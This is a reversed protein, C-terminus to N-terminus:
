FFNKAKPPEVWEGIAEKMAENETNIKDALSKYGNEHGLNWSVCCSIAFAIAIAILFKKDIFVKNGETVEAPLKRAQENSGM